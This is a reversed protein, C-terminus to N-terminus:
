SLSVRRGSRSSERAAEIVEIVDAAEAPFSWLEFADISRVSAATPKLAPLQGIMAAADETDSDGARGSCYIYLYDGVVLVGGGTSQVNGWNWDGKRASIPLFPRTRSLAGCPTM